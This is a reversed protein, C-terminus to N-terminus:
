QVHMHRGGNEEALLRLFDTDNKDGFTVAHITLRKLSNAERVLRRIEDKDTVPGYSPAGDSLVYVTDFGLAYHKDTLASGAFGIATDLAGYLNTPGRPQMTHLFNGLLDDRTEDDIRVLEPYGGRTPRWVRVADSFVVVNFYSGDPLSMVIRRLEDIVLKAKTTQVGAKTSTTDSKLTIPEEMSGSFDVIFLLRDSAIDISFFRQYQDDKQSGKPADRDAYVFTDKENRWFTEWISADGAPVSLGTLGELTKHIRMEVAWPEKKRRLEAKYGAILAPIAHKTRLRALAQCAAVRAQWTKDREMVTELSDIAEDRLKAVDDPIEDHVTEDTLPALGKGIANIAAIRLDPDRDRLRNVFYEILEPDPTSALVDLARVRLRDPLQGTAQLLAARGGTGGRLGLIQMAADARDRAETADEDRLDRSQVMGVLWGDIAPVDMAAIHRRAMARIKWPLLESQFDLSEAASRAGPALPNISAAEFLREAAPMTNWAALKKMRADADALAAEDVMLEKMMRIAGSRYDDLWQVFGQLDALSAEQQAAEADDQATSLPACLALALM